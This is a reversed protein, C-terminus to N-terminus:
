FPADEDDLGLDLDGDLRTLDFRVSPEGIKTFPGFREEDGPGWVGATRAKALSFTERGKVEIRKIKVPGAYVEGGPPLHVEAMKEKWEDWRAQHEAVNGKAAKLDRQILWGESALVSLDDREEGPAETWGAFCHEIFPCFRGIGDSPKGCIRDPVSGTKGAEIVAAAIEEVQAVLEDTLFVPFEHTIQMDHDVFVLLGSDIKDRGFHLAGALQLVSSDYMSDVWVSNKVEIALRESLVVIDTHLEGVPLAPAAPWPIGMELVVDNEGYKAKMQRGIYEGTMRGRALRGAERPTPPTPDVGLLGYSAQRACRSAMSWRTAGRLRDAVESM